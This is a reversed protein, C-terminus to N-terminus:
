QMVMGGTQDEEAPEQGTFPDLKGCEMQLEENWDKLSPVYVSVDRYGKEHLKATIRQTAQRGADDNDLCLIVRKLHPHDELQRFLAHDAVSCM